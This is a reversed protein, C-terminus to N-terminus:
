TACPEAGSHRTEVRGAPRDAADPKAAARALVEFALTVADKVKLLGGAVSVLRIGYDSQRLVAEGQARLTDGTLYVRASVAQPRTVGHLTLEGELTLQMPGVALVKPPGCVFRIEPYRGSELVDDRTAREIERRDGDSTADVLVLSGAAATLRLTSAAPDAPDYEAEGTFDRVGLTPNHGMAAFPGGASVKVTLRSAGPDVVYRM